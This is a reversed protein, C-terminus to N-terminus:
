RGAPPREGLSLRESHRLADRLGLRPLGRVVARMAVLERPYFLVLVPPDDRSLAQFAHYVARRRVGDNTARGLALLSDAQGNRYAFHNNDQGSAYFAWQDPDPPTTWWILTADFNGTLLHDRVLAAFELMRLTVDMGLAALDNQVALAAQERTPNGKDVFLVFRFPEGAANRLRGDGGAPRRWGARALLIRASDRDFALRELTDAFFDGLAVPITGVPADGHGKLVGDIIAKRNVAYGLARRVLMPAFLPRRQNFGVYFHQVVPAERVSIRSDRELSALNAPEVLIIDLEGARLQAVQVNVDPVIKFVIRELKPADGHYQENRELVIASGPTTSAVKFPGTGVPRARSFDIADSLRRGRFVHQPIIGANYGLLALFPAFPARLRFRVTLSDIVDVAAIAAFDSRLRSGSDLDLIQDFTFKVDRASFPRGDHWQVGPRLAFTYELGDASASWSLALDPTPRLQEDPRVLGPFIVKNIMVSGIDPAIVPNLIPDNILPLRLTATAASREASACALAAAAASGAFVARWIM